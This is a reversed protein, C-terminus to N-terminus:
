ILLEGPYRVGGDKIAFLEATVVPGGPEMEWMEARSVQFRGKFRCFKAFHRNTWYPITQLNMYSKHSPDRFALPGDTSPYELMLWGGHALYRYCNNMFKVPDRMHEIVHMARFVGVSNPEFPWDNSELDFTIDGGELDVTEYGSAGNIGGGLDIKRLGEDDAWRAVINGIHELYKRGVNEQVIRNHEVSTSNSVRYAYLCKDIHRIGRAGYKIYTRAVLDFDDGSVMKQCHGGLELYASRRWTRIHDPSFEVRRISHATPPWQVLEKLKHGNFETDRTSWGWWGSFVNPEWSGDRFRADNSYVFQVEPNEYAAIVEEACTPFIADDCDVEALIDGSCLSAAVYKLRGVRNHPVGKDNETQHVRVRSDDRGVTIDAATLGGNALLILEWDQVTQAKISQYCEELYKYGAKHVPTFFSIM